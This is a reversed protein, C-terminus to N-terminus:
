INYLIYYIHIYVNIFMDINNNYFMWKLNYYYKM